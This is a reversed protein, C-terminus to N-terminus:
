NDELLNGVLRYTSRWLAHNGFAIDYRSRTVPKATIKKFVLYLIKLFCNNSKTKTIDLVILIETLIILRM